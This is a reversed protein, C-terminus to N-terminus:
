SNLKRARTTRMEHMMGQMNNIIAQMEERMGELKQFIREEALSEITAELSSTSLNPDMRPSLITRGGHSQMAMVEAKDELKGDAPWSGEVCLYSDPKLLEIVAAADVEDYVTIGKVFSLFGIMEARIDQNLLPRHADKYKKVSIDSNLGVVLVDGLSSARQLYRMHGRHLVDYTGSVFAVSEGRSRMFEGYKVLDKREILKKNRTKVLEQDILEDHPAYFINHNESYSKLELAM